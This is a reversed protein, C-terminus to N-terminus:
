FIRKGHHRSPAARPASVPHDKPDIGHEREDSTREKAASTKPEELKRIAWETV